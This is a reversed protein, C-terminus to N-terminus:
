VADSDFLIEAVVVEVPLAVEHVRAALEDTRHAARVLLLEQDAVHIEVHDVRDALRPLEVAVPPGVGIPVENTRSGRTRKAPLSLVHWSRSATKRSSTIPRRSSGAAPQRGPDRARLPQNRYARARMCSPKVRLGSCEM